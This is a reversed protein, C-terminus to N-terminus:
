ASHNMNNSTLWEKVQHVLDPLSERDTHLILHDEQMPVWQRRIQEYVAEDAESDPRAEKVRHRVVEEKARLEIWYIPMRIQAAATTWEEREEKRSFTADIIVRHGSLLQRFAEERLQQYVSQKEETSYHGQLGLEIRVSDSNRHWADIDAALQRALTTKGTGPLGFVLILIPADIKEMSTPHVVLSLIWLRCKHIVQSTTM